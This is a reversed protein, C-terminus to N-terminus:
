TLPNESATSAELLEDTATADTTTADTAEANSLRKWQTVGEIWLFKDLSKRSLSDLKFRSRFEDLVRTFRVYDRLEYRRFSAFSFQRRYEWLLWEVFSDFIQFHEPAHWSCYKTAFSLLTRQKEGFRVAALDGVLADDGRKLRADIDLEQIHAAVAYVNFINTSYLRNLVVVKTLIHEYVVNLPWQRFVLEVTREAGYYQPNEDFEAARRRVYELTPEPLM